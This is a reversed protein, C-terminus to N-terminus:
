GTLLNVPYQFRFWVFFGYIALVTGVFPVTCTFSTLTFTLGMLLPGLFRGRRTGSQARQVLSAPLALEFTGFLSLALTM